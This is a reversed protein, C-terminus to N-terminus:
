LNIENMIKLNKWKKKMLKHDKKMCTCKMFLNQIDIIKEKNILSNNKEAKKQLLIIIHIIDM